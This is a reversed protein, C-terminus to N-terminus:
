PTSSDERKPRQGCTRAMRKILVKRNANTCRNSIMQASNGGPGLESSSSSGGVTKCHGATGAHM